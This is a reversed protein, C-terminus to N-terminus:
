FDFELKARFQTGVSNFFSGFDSAFINNQVDRPNFHNTANFVKLGARLTHKRGFVVVQFPRIVQFDLSAFAPFRRSDRRGAFNLEDDVVSFPFGSHVDLLPWFELKWPM